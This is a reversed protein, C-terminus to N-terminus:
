RSQYVYAARGNPATDGDILWRMPDGDPINDCWKFRCSFDVDKKIGLTKRSIRIVLSTGSITCPVITLPNWTKGEFAFVQASTGTRLPYVKYHFGQWAPAERKDMGIYLVMWNEADPTTLPQECDARFWLM